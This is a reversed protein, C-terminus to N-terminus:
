GRGRSRPILHVIHVCKSLIMDGLSLVDDQVEAVSLSPASISATIAYVRSHASTAHDSSRAKVEDQAEM